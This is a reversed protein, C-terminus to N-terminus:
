AIQEQPILSNSMVFQIYLGHRWARPPKKTFSASHSLVSVVHKEFWAKPPMSLNAETKGINFVIKASNSEPQMCVFQFLLLNATSYKKMVKKDSLCLIEVHSPILRLVRPEFINLKNGAITGPLLAQM